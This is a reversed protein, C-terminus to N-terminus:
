FLAKGPQPYNNNYQILEELNHINMSELGALYEELGCKFDLDVIM